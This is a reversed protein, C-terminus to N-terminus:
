HFRRSLPDRGGRRGVDEFVTYRGEHFTPRYRPDRGVRPPPAGWAGWDGFFSQNGGQSNDICWEAPRAYRGFYDSYSKDAYKGLSQFAYEMLVSIPQVTQAWPLNTSTLTEGESHQGHSDGEGVSGIDGVTEIKMTSAGEFDRKPSTLHAFDKSFLSKADELSRDVLPNPPLAYRVDSKRPSLGPPLVPTSASKKLISLNAPLALPSITDHINVPRDTWPLPDSSKLSEKGAASAHSDSSEGQAVGFSLREHSNPDDKGARPAAPDYLVTRMATPLDGQLKSSTVVDHLNQLLLDKNAAFSTYPKPDRQYQDNSIMIQTSDERDGNAKSLPPLPFRRQSTQSFLPSQSENSFAGESASLLHFGGGNSCNSQQDRALRNNVSPQSTAPQEIFPDDHSKQSNMTAPRLAPQVGLNRLRAEEVATLSQHRNGNSQTPPLPESSFMESTAKSQVGGDKMQALHYDHLFTSSGRSILPPNTTHSATQSLQENNSMSPLTKKGNTASNSLSGISKEVNHAHTSNLLPRFPPAPISSLGNSAKTETSEGNVPTRRTVSSNHSEAGSVLLSNSSATSQTSESSTGDGQVSEEPLEDLGLTKWGKGRNRPKTFKLAGLSVPGASPMEEEMEMEKAAKRSRHANLEAARVKPAFTTGSTHNALTARRGATQDPSPTAM